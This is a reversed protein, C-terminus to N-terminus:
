PKYAVLTVKVTITRDGRLITLEITDGPAYEAVLTAVSGRSGVEIDGVKTIIDKDKVGAKDAPGGSSIASQSGDGFVYAGRNVPLGYQKKVEATIQLYNIGLFAHEVPGGKLVGKLAGKAAGIPIAFGIGQAGEVIATNIGIVQGKLNLLPGGSNGPNIAADTQILDTLTEVEDGNEAAIPRGTGSIIGSTVTNQYEGLTNGIAMVRQGVRISTSDGLEAAQLGKVDPIKLFAIDNLPDAGIVKANPYSTGDSLIVQVSSAGDIVHKNTMVYGDGSVIIGTGAGQEEAGFRYTSNRSTTIISVVSPAVKANVNAVDEEEKTVIKNGDDEVTQRDTVSLTTRAVFSYFQFGAFGLGVIVLVGLTVSLWVLWAYSKKKISATQDVEPQQIHKQEEM